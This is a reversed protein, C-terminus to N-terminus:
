SVVEVHDKELLKQVHGRCPEQFHEELQAITCPGHATIWDLVARRRSAAQPNSSGRGTARVTVISRRPSVTKPRPPIKQMARTAVWLGHALTGPPFPNTESELM